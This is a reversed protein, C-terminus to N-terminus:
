LIEALSGKKDRKKGQEEKYEEYSLRSIRDQEEKHKQEREERLNIMTKYLAKRAQLYTDNLSVKGYVFINAFDSKYGLIESANEQTIFSENNENCIAFPKCAYLARLIHLPSDKTLSDIDSDCLIQIGTEVEGLLNDQITEVDNNDKKYNLEYNISSLNEIM